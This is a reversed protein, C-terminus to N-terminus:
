VMPYTYGSFKHPIQRKNAKFIMLYIKSVIYAAELMVRPYKRAKGISTM